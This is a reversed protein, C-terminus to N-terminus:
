RNLLLRYRFLGKQGAVRERKLEHGGWEPLRYARLRAHIGGESGRGIIARIDALTRWEGDKMLDFVVHHLSLLRPGDLKEDYTEGKVTAERNSLAMVDSFSLQRFALM